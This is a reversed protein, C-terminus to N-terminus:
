AAQSSANPQAAPQPQRLQPQLGCYILSVVTGTDMTVAPSASALLTWFLVFTAGASVNELALVGVAAAFGLNTAIPTIALFFGIVTWRRSAAIRAGRRSGPGTV